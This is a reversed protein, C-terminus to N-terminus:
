NIVKKILKNETHELIFHGIFKHIEQIRATNNSPIVLNIDSYKKALGGNKGLFSVTKIKKSKAYKLVKIINKSNGSTSLVWLIDGKAVLSELSRQFVMEFNYDNSCATLFSLNTGLNIIPFARRNVNPRLRVLFETSLHEADSASGGNGCIFIKKKNKLTKYFLSLTDKIESSLSYTKDLLNQAYKIEKKLNNFFILDKNTM